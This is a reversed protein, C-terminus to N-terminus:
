LRLFDKRLCSPQTGSKRWISVNEEPLHLSTWLTWSTLLCVLGLFYSFRLISLFGCSECLGVGLHCLRCCNWPLTRRSSARGQFSCIAASICTKHSIISHSKFWRHRHTVSRKHDQLYNGTVQRAWESNNRHGAVPTRDQTSLCKNLDGWFFGCLLSKSLEEVTNDSFFIWVIGHIVHFTYWM